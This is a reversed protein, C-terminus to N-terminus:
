ITYCLRSDRPSKRHISICANEGAENRSCLFTGLYIAPTPAQVKMETTSTATSGDYAISGSFIRLKSGEQDLYEIGLKGGLTNLNCCDRNVYGYDKLFHAFCRVGEESRETESGDSTFMRVGIAGADESNLIPGILVGDAGIGEKKDCVEKIQEITLEHSNKVCDYVLYNKGLEQYNEFILKM